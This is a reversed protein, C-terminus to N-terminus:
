RAFREINGLLAATDTTCAAIEGDVELAFFRTPLWKAPAYDEARDCPRDIYVAKEVVQPSACGGLILIALLLYKM